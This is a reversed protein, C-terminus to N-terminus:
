RLEERRKPRATNIEAPAEPTAAPTVAPAAARPTAAPGAAEPTVTPAATQPPQTQGSELQGLPSQAAVKMETQKPAVKGGPRPKQTGNVVVWDSPSIGSQIVIDEGEMEGTKVPRAEVTNDSKVVLVYEGRQDAAVAVQPVLLQDQPQGLPVRIRVFMGPAIIRDANPLVGRVTVTGTMPDIRSERFDIIGQHPFGEENELSVFIPVERQEASPVSGARIRKQYDLYNQEPVNFYVYIPDLRTITTLLTPDNVGVLNGVTVLSRGVRGNIPATIKTYSVDLKALDVAAQGQKVTAEAQQVTAVRQQYEEETVANSTRLRTTRQLEAQALTLQSQAQLVQAEARELAAEFERPDIEYLLTGAKVETGEQYDIKLLYGRVRARIDVSEVADTEGTYEHFPTIPTVAPHAVTVPPPPPQRQTPARQICGCFALCGLLACLWRTLRAVGRM